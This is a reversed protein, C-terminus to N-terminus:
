SGAHSYSYLFVQLNGIHPIYYIELLVTRFDNSKLAESRMYYCYRLVNFCKRLLLTLLEQQPEATVFRVLMWLSAPEIGPGM